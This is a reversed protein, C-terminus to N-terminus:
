GRSGLQAVGGAGRRGGGLEHLESALRELDASRNAILKRALTQLGELNERQRQGARGERREARDPLPTTPPRSCSRLQYDVADSVGDFVVDIIPRAWEILGWDKADEYHIPRTLQGTGLSVLVSRRRPQRREAEAYACMAPNNPSSAATACGVPAM